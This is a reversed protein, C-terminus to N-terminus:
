PTQTRRRAGDTPAPHVWRGASPDAFVEKKWIPVAQKVRDICFRAADFAAARHAAAVVIVISTEGVALRGLRHVVAIAAVAFRAMAEARVSELESLAMSEYAEYELALLPGAAPDTEARVDGSFTVVAGCDPPQGLAAAVSAANIPDRTLRIM